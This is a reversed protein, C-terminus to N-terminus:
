EIPTLKLKPQSRQVEPQALALSKKMMYRTTGLTKAIETDSMKRGGVLKSGWRVQRGMVLKAVIKANPLNQQKKVM